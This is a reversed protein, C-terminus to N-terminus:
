RMFYSYLFTLSSTNVCSWIFYLRICKNETINQFKDILSGNIFCSIRNNCLSQFYYLVSLSSYTSNTNPRECKSDYNGYLNGKIFSIKTGTPCNITDNVDDYESCKCLTKNSLDAEAKLFVLILNQHISYLFFFNGLFLQFFFVIPILNFCKHM